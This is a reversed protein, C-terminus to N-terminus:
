KTRAYMGVLEGQMLIHGAMAAELEKKGADKGLDLKTDLAYIKFHYHHKGSPPCPGTYGNEGKGNKGETGPSSNEKITGDTPINWMVWHVFTGMPADPDDMILAFSRTDTTFNKFALPPNVNDGDCTYKSPIDGNASFATSSVDLKADTLFAALIVSLLIYKM